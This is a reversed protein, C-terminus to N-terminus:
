ICRCFGFILAGDTHCRIFNHFLDLMARESYVAFVHYCFRHESQHIKKPYSKSDCFFIANKCTCINTLIQRKRFNYLCKEIRRPELRLQEHDRTFGDRCYVARPVHGREKESKITRDDRMNLQFGATRFKDSSHKCEM